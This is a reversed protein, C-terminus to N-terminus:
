ADEHRLSCWSRVSITRSQRFDLLHWMWLPIANGHTILLISTKPHELLLLVSCHTNVQCHRHPNQLWMLSMESKTTMTGSVLNGRFLVMTLHMWLLPQSHVHLPWHSVSAQTLPMVGHDQGEEEASVTPLRALLNVAVYCAACDNLIQLMCLQLLLLLVTIIQVFAMEFCWSLTVFDSLVTKFQFPCLQWRGREETHKKDRKTKKGSKRKHTHPGGITWFPTVVKWDQRMIYVNDSIPWSTFVLRRKNCDTVELLRDTCVIGNLIGSAWAQWLWQQEDTCAHSIVDLFMARNKEKMKLEFFSLCSDCNVSLHCVTVCFTLLPWFLCASVSQEQSIVETDPGVKSWPCAMGMQLWSLFWLVGGSYLCHCFFLVCMHHHVHSPLPGHWKLSQNRGPARHHWRNM